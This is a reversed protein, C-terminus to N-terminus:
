RVTGSVPVTTQESTTAWYLAGATGTAVLVGATAIVWGRQWWRPPPNVGRKQLDANVRVEGDPPVSVTAVFTVYGPKEIRIEYKAPAAVKTAALPTHGRRQGAITVTAGTVNAVVDIVGFQAFDSPPLLRTLYLQLAAADAVQGRALSEAIRAQVAATGVHIRQLTVIVDGLESIGVLLVEAANVRKGIAALCEAAGACKAVADDLHDGYLARAGSADIVALSTTRRLVDTLEKGIGPVAASGARFELVVVKRKPAPEAEAAANRHPWGLILWLALVALARASRPFRRGNSASTQGSFILLLYRM